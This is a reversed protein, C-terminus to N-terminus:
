RTARPSRLLVTPILSGVVIIATLWALHVVLPYPWYMTVGVGVIAVVLALLAPGWVRRWAVVLFAAPVWDAIESGVGMSRVMDAPTQLLPLANIWPGFFMAACHFVLLLGSVFAVASGLKTVRVSRSRLLPHGVFLRVAVTVVAFALLGGWLYPQNM